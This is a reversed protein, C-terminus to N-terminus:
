VTSAPPRGRSTIDTAPATHGPVHRRDGADKTLGTTM